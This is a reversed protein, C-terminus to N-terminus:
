KRRAAATARTPGRRGPSRRRWCRRWGWDIVQVRGGESVIVNSPTLDRHVVGKAHAYAIAQCAQEFHGLYRDLDPAPKGALLDALTRGKILKMALFPRGDELRGV